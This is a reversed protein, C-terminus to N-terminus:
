REGGGGRKRDRRELERLLAAEVIDQIRVRDLAAAIRLRDPIDDRVRASVIRTGEIDDAMDPVISM